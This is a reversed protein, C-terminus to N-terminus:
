EDIDISSLQKVNYMDHFTIMMGTERIKYQHLRTGYAQSM